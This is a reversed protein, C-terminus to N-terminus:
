RLSKEPHREVIPDKLSAWLSVGAASAGQLLIGLVSAVIGLAVAVILCCGCVDAFARSAVRGAARRAPRSPLAPLWAWLLFALGGLGLALSLYDLGRVVGFAVETAQGSKNRDILGAVTFKPM